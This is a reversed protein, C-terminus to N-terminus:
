KAEHNLPEVNENNIETTEKLYPIQAWYHLMSRSIASKHRDSKHRGKLSESIKQRTSDSLKRQLRM